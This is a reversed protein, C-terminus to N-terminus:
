TELAKVGRTVDVLIVWRGLTDSGMLGVIDYTYYKRRRKFRGMCNGFCGWGFLISIFGDFFVDGGKSHLMQFSSMDLKTEYKIKLRKM